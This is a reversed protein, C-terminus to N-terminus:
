LEVKLYEPKHHKYAFEVYLFNKFQDFVRREESGLQNYKKIDIPATIGTKEHPKLTIFRDKSSAGFASDGELFPQMEEGLFYRDRFSITQNTKNVIWFSYSIFNQHNANEYERVKVKGDQIQLIESENSNIKDQIDKYSIETLFTDIPPGDLATMKEYLFWGILGIIIFTIPVTGKKIM